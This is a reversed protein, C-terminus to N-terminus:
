GLGGVPRCAFSYLVLLSLRSLPPFASLPVMLPCVAQILNQLGSLQLAFTNGALQISTLADRCYAFASDGM